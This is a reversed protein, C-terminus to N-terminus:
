DGCIQIYLQSMAFPKDAHDSTNFQKRGGGLPLPLLWFEGIRDDGGGSYREACGKDGAIGTQQAQTPRRQLRRAYGPKGSEYLKKRV